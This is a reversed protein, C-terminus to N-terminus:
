WTVPNWDKFLSRSRGGLTVTQNHDLYIWFFQGSEVSTITNAAAFVPRPDFLFWGFDPPENQVEPDFHWVRVLNDNDAILPAFADAPPEPTVIPHPHNALVITALTLLLVVNLLLALFTISTSRGILPVIWKM